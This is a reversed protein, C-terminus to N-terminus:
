TEGYCSARVRVTRTRGGRDRFRLSQGTARSEGDTLRM